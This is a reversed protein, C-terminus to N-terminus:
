AKHFPNNILFNLLEQKEYINAVQVGNLIFWFKSPKLRGECDVTSSMVWVHLFLFSNHV